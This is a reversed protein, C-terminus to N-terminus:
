QQRRRIREVFTTCLAEL